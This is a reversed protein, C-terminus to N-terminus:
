YVHKGVFGKVITLFIIKMDLWFSWHQIYWLDHDVRKEMKELTETEGRWGNIQAWGTIGPKVKHRLMYGKILNRYQENHAVAHPRPGVISMDGKLVNLFQPLEDLSSARLFKGIPTVRPDDKTAQRVASGNECVRMSRFKWVSIERGDLGYRKQKFLVPGPSTLKVAVAILLMPIAVISLVLSAVIIDQARKVWGEIGWFPTDFVSVVPIGEISRWQGHFLNFIFLDPAIYVSVTTDALKDILEQIRHQATLPLTTYIVDIEGHRAKEVLAELDGRIEGGWSLRDPAYKRDEFFGVFRFGHWPSNEITKAIRVGQDGAGVIAVTRTNFGQSRLNHLFRWMAWRWLGVTLPTFIFWVGMVVRSYGDSAKTLYAVVLLTLVTCLWILVVQLFQRKFPIGRWSRYLGGIEAILIFAFVASLAALSFKHNWGLAPQYLSAVVVLVSAICLGDFIKFVVSLGHAQRLFGKSQSRGMM